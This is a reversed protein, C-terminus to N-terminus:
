ARNSLMYAGYAASMYLGGIVEAGVIIGGAGILFFVGSFIFAVMGSFTRSRKQDQSM